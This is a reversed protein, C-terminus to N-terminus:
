VVVANAVLVNCVVRTSERGLGVSAAFRLCGV